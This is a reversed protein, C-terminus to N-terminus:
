EVTLTLATSHKVAGSTGTISLTYTGAPTVDSSSPAKGTGGACGVLTLALLLAAASAARHTLRSRKACLALGFIGFPLTMWSALINGGSSNTSSQAAMSSTTVTVTVSSNAGPKVSTPNVSCLSFRPAGSCSFSVAGSFNGGVAKVSLQYTAIAGAAITQNGDLVSASFDIGSGSLSITQPQQGLDGALRLTGSRIGSTTPIFTVALTCSQGSALTACNNSSISYDGTLQVPELTVASGGSNTVTIPQPVSAIGVSLSPFTLAAPAATIGSSDGTGTGSLSITHPSGAADDAIALGGTEDGSTGPTFTISFTCFSAPAVSTGCDDTEAFDGTINKSTLHLVSSGMNRLVSTQVPSESGVAQSAFRLSYATLTAAPSDTNPDIKAVFTDSQGGFNAQFASQIVPFDASQTVGTLYVAGNSDLALSDAAAEFDQGGLFTAMLETTGAPDIEAVVIDGNGSYGEIPDILSFQTDSGVVFANGNADVQIAQGEMENTPTLFTAYVLSAGSPDLKAIITGNCSASSPDCISTSTIPFGDDGTDFGTVYASGSSDAAIGNLESSTQGGLYTSYLVAGSPGLKSVFGVNSLSNGPYTVDFAGSSVPFDITNTDGVLFANGSADTAVGMIESDPFCGTCSATNLNSGSVYTSYVLSAGDAAFKTVFGYIGWDGFQDSSVTPQAANVAPFDLSMTSGAVIMEGAPDVAVSNAIEANSGGIYTSYSLSGDSAFKTLFGDQSGSLTSQYANLVPFDSSTAVGTVYVNGPADVALSMPEDGGSTGGFYDAVLLTSGSPDFKTLFMRFQNADYPGIMALPFDPSDTIGTVYANGSSDVGIAQGFDDGSGGLYTSYVLVPDIVLPRATDYNGVAFGITNEGNLIYTGQVRRRKGNVLQYLSPIQLRVESGAKALLLNGAADLRMKDAGQVAFQIKRPDAGPALEFDYEIRGQNGYYVLDIGPYVSRYRIRAFTEVNTRWRKPDRGIFYNVKTPLPVEASVVPNTNSGILSIAFTSVAPSKSKALRELDHITTRRANPRRETANSAINGEFTRLALTLNGSTLFATYGKGRSLFGVDPTSQGQNREFFLPSSYRGSAANITDRTVPNGAQAQTQQASCSAAVIVISLLTRTIRSAYLRTEQM